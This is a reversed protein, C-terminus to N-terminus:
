KSRTSRSNSWRTSAASRRAAPSTRTRRISSSNSRAARGLRVAPHPLLAREHEGGGAAMSDAAAAALLLLGFAVAMLIAIGGAIILNTPFNLNATQHDADGLGGGGAFVALTAIAVTSVTAIRLGAVIEPVALPLEVKWLIQRETLGMGRAADKVSAPVNDLGVCPTATSSRCPTPASPSSRPTAAAGPSRCCCSSSPSAPSRSSSAPRRWCRRSCGASATARAAGPRLRDRLRRRGLDGGTRAAAATPTGYRDINERAWDWCFLAQRDGPLAAHGDTREKVFGEGVEGVAALPSRALMPRRERRELPREVAGHEDTKAEPSALFESIIEVSLMGVIRAARPRGRRRVPREGQLLDALADRM